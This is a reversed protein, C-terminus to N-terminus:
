FWATIIIIIIIIIIITELCYKAEQPVKLLFYYYYSPKHLTTVQCGLCVGIVHPWAFSRYILEYFVSAICIVLKQRRDVFNNIIKLTFM